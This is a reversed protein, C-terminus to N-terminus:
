AQEQERAAQADPTTPPERLVEALSEVETALGHGAGHDASRDLGAVEVVTRGGVSAVRV